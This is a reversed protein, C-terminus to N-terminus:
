NQFTLQTLWQPQSQLAPNHAGLLCSRSIVTYAASLLAACTVRVAHLHMSRVKFAFSMSISPVHRLLYPTNGRWLALVGQERALRGFSHVFSYRPVKGAPYCDCVVYVHLRSCHRVLFTQRSVAASYSAITTLAVCNAASGAYSASSYSGREM